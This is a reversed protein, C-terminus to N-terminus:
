TRDSARNRSLWLLGLGVVFLALSLWPIVALPSPAPPQEPNGAFLDVGTGDENGATAYAGGGGGTGGYSTRDTTPIPRGALATASSTPGFEATSSTADRPPASEGEAKGGGAAPAPQQPANASDSGVSSGVTSLVQAAGGAGGGFLTPLAVTLVLGAVGLTTLASAFPRLTPAAGFGDLLRRWGGRRLKAAQEPSIRFDRTVPLSRPLSELGSSIARLDSFLTACEDCSALQQQAAVKTADDAERDAAAAILYIDHTSHDTM